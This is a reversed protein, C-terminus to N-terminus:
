DKTYHRENIELLDTKSIYNNEYGYRLTIFYNDKWLLIERNSFSYSFIVGDIDDNRIQGTDGRTLDKILVVEYGNYNGYYKQILIDDVTESSSCYKDIYSLKIKEELSNSLYTDENNGNTFTCGTCILSFLLFFVITRFKSM